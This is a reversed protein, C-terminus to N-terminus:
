SLISEPRRGLAPASERVPGGCPAHRPPPGGASQGPSASALSGALPRFAALWLFVLEGSVAGQLRRSTVARHSLRIPIPVQCGLHPVLLQAAEDFGLPGGQLDSVPEGAEPSILGAVIERISCLALLMVM